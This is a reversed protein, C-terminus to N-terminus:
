DILKDLNDDVLSPMDIPYPDALHEDETAGLVMKRTEKIQKHIDEALIYTKCAEYRIWDKYFAVLDWSTVRLNPYTDSKYEVFKLNRELAKSHLSAMQFAKQRNWFKVFKACPEMVHEMISRTMLDRDASFRREKYTDIYNMYSPGALQKTTEHLMNRLDISDKKVGFTEKILQLLNASKKGDIVDALDLEWQAMDKRTVVFVLNSTIKHLMERRENGLQDFESREALSAYFPECYEGSKIIYQRILQRLHPSSTSQELNEKLINYGYALCKSENETLTALQKVQQAVSELPKKGSSFDIFGRSVCTDVKKMNCELDKPDKCRKALCQDLKQYGETGKYVKALSPAPWALCCALSLLLCCNSAWM